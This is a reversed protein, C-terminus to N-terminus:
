DGGSAELLAAALPHGAGGDRPGRTRGLGLAELVRRLEACTARYDPFDVERGEVLAREDLEARTALAAARRCLALQATALSRRGGLEAHLRDEVSRFLRATASREDIPKGAIVVREYPVSPRGPGPRRRATRRVM